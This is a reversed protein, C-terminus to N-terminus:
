GGTARLPSRRPQRARAGAMANGRRRLDDYFADLVRANITHLRKGGQAPKIKKAILSRYDQM